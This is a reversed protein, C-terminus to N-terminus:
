SLLLLSKRAYELKHFIGIARRMDNENALLALTQLRHKFCVNPNCCLRQAM